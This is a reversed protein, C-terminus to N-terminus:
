GAVGPHRAEITLWRLDPTLTTRSEGESLVVGVRVKLEQVISSPNGRKANVTDPVIM